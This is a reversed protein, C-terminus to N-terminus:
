REIKMPKYEKTPSAPQRELLALFDNLESSDYVPAGTGELNQDDNSQKEIVKDLHSAEDEQWPPYDSVEGTRHNVWMKCGAQMLEEWDAPDISSFNQVVINQQKQQRGKLLRKRRADAAADAKETANFYAMNQLSDLKDNGLMRVFNLSQKRTMFMNPPQLTNHDGEENGKLFKRRSAYFMGQSYDAKTGFTDGFPVKALLAAVKDDEEM